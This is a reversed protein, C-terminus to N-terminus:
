GCETVANAGSWGTAVEGQWLVEARMGLAVQLWWGEQCGGLLILLLGKVM